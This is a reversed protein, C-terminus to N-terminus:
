GTPTQQHLLLQWAGDRRVYVSGVNAEYPGQGPRRASAAYALAVVGDAVDVVHLDTIELDEWPTAERMSAVVQEKDLIAMPFVCRGGGAFHRRYFDADGAAAWFARELELVDDRDGMTGEM